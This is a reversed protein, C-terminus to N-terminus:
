NCKTNNCYWRRRREVCLHYIPTNYLCYPLGGGLHALRLAEFQIVPSGVCRQESTGDGERAVGGLVVDSM